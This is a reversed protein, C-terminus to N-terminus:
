LLGETERYGQMININQICQSAAGKLLNDLTACVVARNTAKDVSVGGITVHHKDANASVEPIGSQITILPEDQYYARYLDLLNNADLAKNLQLAITLSIGRFWPAVHPMFRIGHPLDGKLQYSVEKEHTHNQLSYPMLNDKLANVDNKRSPTTGAGSYGSVGFVHPAYSTEIYASLPFLSLQAGTAYCGPNAIRAASRISSRAGRREPLGYTWSPTFRFDASLDVVKAKSKSADLANVYPAALDNPLALIWIDVDERQALQSPQLDTFVVESFKTSSKPLSSSFVDAVTRGKLQRSSAVSLTLFPHRSM